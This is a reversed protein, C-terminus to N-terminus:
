QEIGQKFRVHGLNYLAVPQVVPKQSALASEFSAEAERLKGSRLQKTGSNFLERPTSPAQGESVAPVNTIGGLRRAPLDANALEDTGAAGRVDCCFATAVLLALLIRARVNM